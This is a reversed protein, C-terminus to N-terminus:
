VRFDRERMEKDLATLPELVQNQQYQALLVVLPAYHINTLEHTFGIEIAM